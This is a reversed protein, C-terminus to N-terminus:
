VDRSNRFGIDNVLRYAGQAAAPDVDVTIDVHLRALAYCNCPNPASSATVNYPYYTFPAASTVYDAYRTGGTCTAGAVRFLQYRTATGVQRVCWTIPTSIDAGSGNTCGGNPQQITVSAAPGTVSANTQQCASHLERKLKDMAIGLETQAQFRQSVDTQGKVGSVFLGGIGGMVTGLITMTVIVEMITFGGEARRLARLRDRV